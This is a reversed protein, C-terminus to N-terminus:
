FPHRREDPASSTRATSGSRRAPGSPGFPDSLGARGFRVRSPPEDLYRRGSPSTWHLSGDPRQQVRWDSHHKLVHHGRCLHALNETSTAGGLAADITHDLDCRSVPIRCGPFRCHQDRAALRRRMDESPRYRDVAIVSGSDSGVSVLEWAPASVAISRAADLPILGAGVLEAVVPPLTAEDGARAQPPLQGRDAPSGAERLPMRDLAAVPVMVHVRARMAEASSCSALASPDSGLLLEAFVDARMEDRSRRVPRESTITAAGAAPLAAIVKPSGDVDRAAEMSVPTDEHSAQVEAREVERAIRTLRDHIAYAEATPLYALLDSMGDDREQLIVRRRRVEERHREDLTHVAFQEAIRRAIPRLRNVSEGRAFQLVKAEYATRRAVLDPSAGSGIRCAADVIVRAHAASIEGAALTEHTAEYNRRLSWAADM